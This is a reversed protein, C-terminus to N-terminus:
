AYFFKGNAYKLKPPPLIRAQIQAFKSAISIGFARVVENQNINARDLAQMIKDKREYTPTAANKIMVRTQQDDLKKQTVQGPLITCLEPPYYLKRDRPGVWVLPLKPYQIKYKKQKLFYNYVTDEVGNQDVFKTSVSNGQSLYNVRITRRSSPQNPIEYRIKLSKMHKSVTEASRFDIEDMQNANQNSIEAMLDVVNMEKPFGKNAIDVNLYPKWGLIASQFFGHWLEM